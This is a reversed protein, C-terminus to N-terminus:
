FFRKFTEESARVLFDKTLPIDFDYGSCVYWPLTPDPYRVAPCRPPIPGLLVLRRCIPEGRLCGDRFREWADDSRKKLLVFLRFGIYISSEFQFGLNVVRSDPRSPAHRSPLAPRSPAPNPRRRIPGGWSTLKKRM